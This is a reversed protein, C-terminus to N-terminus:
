YLGDSETALFRVLNQLERTWLGNYKYFPHKDAVAKLRAVEQKQALIETTVDDLVPKVTVSTLLTRSARWVAGHVLTSIHVSYLLRVDM